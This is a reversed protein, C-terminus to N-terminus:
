DIKRFRAAKAAEVCRRKQDESPGGSYVKLTIPKRGEEHGVVESSIREQQGAQEAETVLWCRFSHFNVLSEPALKAEKLYTALHHDISVKGSSVNDQCTSLPGGERAQRYLKDTEREIDDRRTMALKM